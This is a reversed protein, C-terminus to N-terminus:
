HAYWDFYKKLWDISYRVHGHLLPSLESVPVKESGSEAYGVGHTYFKTGDNNFSALKYGLELIPQQFITENIVAIGDVHGVCPLVTLGGIEAVEKLIRTSTFTFQGDLNCMEDRQKLSPVSDMIRDALPHGRGRKELFNGVAGIERDSLFASVIDSLWNDKSPVIDQEQFLYYDYKDGLVEWAYKYGGFSFGINERDLVMKGNVALKKLYNKTGEHETGNNVIIIDYDVGPKYHDHCALTFDLSELKNESYPVHISADLKGRLYYEGFGSIPVFVPIVCAIRGTKSIPLQPNDYKGIIM